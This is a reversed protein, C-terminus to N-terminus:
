DKGPSKVMYFAAVCGCNRASLNVDFSVSGGLMNPAFFTTPDKYPTWFLRTGSASPMTFQRNNDSIANPTLFLKTDVGDVKVILPQYSDNSNMESTFAASATILMFSKM